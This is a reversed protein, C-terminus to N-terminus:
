TAQAKCPAYDEDLAEAGNRKPSASAARVREQLQANLLQNVNDWWANQVARKHAFSHFACRSRNTWGPLPTACDLCHMRPEEVATEAQAEILRVVNDGHVRNQSKELDVTCPHCLNQWAPELLLPVKCKTCRGVVNAPADAHEACKPEHSTWCAACVQEGVVLRKRCIYDPYLCNSQTNLRVCCSTMIRTWDIEEGCLACSYDPKCKKVQEVKEQPLAM